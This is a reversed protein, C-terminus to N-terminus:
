FWGTEKLSSVNLIVKWHPHNQKVIKYAEKENEAKVSIETYKGSHGVIMEQYQKRTYCTFSYEKM